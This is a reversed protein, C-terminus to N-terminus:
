GLYEMMFSRQSSAPMLWVWTWKEHSTAAGVSVLPARDGKSVTVSVVGYVLTLWMTLQLCTLSALYDTGYCWLPDTM